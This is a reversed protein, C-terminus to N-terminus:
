GKYTCNVQEELIWLYIIVVTVEQKKSSKREKLLFASEIVQVMSAGLLPLPAEAFCRFSNFIIPPFLFTHFDSISGLSSELMGRLSSKAQKKMRSTETSRSKDLKKALQDM